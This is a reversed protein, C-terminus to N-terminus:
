TCKYNGVSKWFKDKKRPIDIVQQKRISLRQTTLSGFINLNDDTPKENKKGKSEKGFYIIIRFM